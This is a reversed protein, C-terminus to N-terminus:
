PSGAKPPEESTGPEDAPVCSRKEGSRVGVGSVHESCAETQMRAMTVLGNKDFEVTLTRELSRLYGYGAGGGAAPMFVLIGGRVSRTTYYLESQDGSFSDPEGLQMLVDERTTVGPLVFDPVRAGINERVGAVSM